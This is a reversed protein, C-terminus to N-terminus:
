ASSLAGYFRLVNISLHFCGQLDCNGAQQRRDLIRLMSCLFHSTNNEPSVAWLTAGPGDLANAAMRLITDTTVASPLRTALMAYISAAEIQLPAGTAASHSDSAPVQV